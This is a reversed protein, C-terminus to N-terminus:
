AQSPRPPRPHQIARRPRPQGQRNNRQGRAPRKPREPWPEHLFLLSREAAKAFRILTEAWLECWKFEELLNTDKLRRARPHGQFWAAQMEPPRRQLLDVNLNAPMHIVNNRHDALSSTETMLWMLDDVVATPKTDQWKHCGAIIAAKLMNQQTRDNDTSYWIAYGMYPEMGSIVFFLRAFQEHLMNWNYAVRGVAAAYVDFIAFAEDRTPIIRPKPPSPPEM